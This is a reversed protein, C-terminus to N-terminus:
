TGQLAKKESLITQVTDEVDDIRSELYGFLEELERQKGEIRMVAIRLKKELKDIRNLIYETDVDNGHKALSNQLGLNIYIKILDTVQIGLEAAKEKLRRYVSDPLSLHVTPM